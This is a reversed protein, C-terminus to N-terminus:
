NSSFSVFDMEDFYQDLFVKHIESILKEAQDSSLIVTTEHILEPLNNDKNYDYFLIKGYEKNDKLHIKDFGSALDRFKITRLRTKFFGYDYYFSLSKTNVILYEKGYTNWLLYKIPFGIFIIFITILILFMKIDKDSFAQNALFIFIIIETLIFISVIRIGTKSAGVKLTAFVNIGDSQIDINNDM